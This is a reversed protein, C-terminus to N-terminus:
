KSFSYDAPVSPEKPPTQSRLQRRLVAVAVPSRLRKAQQSMTFLKFNVPDRGPDRHRHYRSFAQAEHTDRNAPTGM